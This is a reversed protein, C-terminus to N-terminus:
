VPKQLVHRVASKNSVDMNNLCVGIPLNAPMRWFLIVSSYSLKHQRQGKASVVYKCTVLVSNSPSDDWLM